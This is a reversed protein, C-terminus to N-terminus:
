LAIAETGVPSLLSTAEGPLVNLLVEELFGVRVERQWSVAARGPSESCRPVRSATWARSVRSGM